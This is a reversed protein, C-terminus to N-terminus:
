RSVIAFAAGSTSASPDGHADVPAHGRRGRARRSEGAAPGGNTRQRIQVPPDKRLGVQAERPVMGAQALAETEELRDADGRPTREERTRVSLPERVRSGREANIRPEMRAAQRLAEITEDGRATHALARQPDIEKGACRGGPLLHRLPCPDAQVARG